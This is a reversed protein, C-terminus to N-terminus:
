FAFNSSSVTATLYGFADLAFGIWGTASIQSLQTSTLGSSTTSFRLSRPNSGVGPDVGNGPVFTGTLNLKSGTRDITNSDAFALNAGSGM